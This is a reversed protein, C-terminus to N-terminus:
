QTAAKPAAAAILAAGQPSTAVVDVNPMAKVDAIKAAQTSKLMGIITMIVPTLTAIGAVISTIGDGIQHLGTSIATADGGSIFHLAVLTAIVSSLSTVAYRTAVTIQNLM